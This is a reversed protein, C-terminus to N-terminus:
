GHTRKDLFSEFLTRSHPYIVVHTPSNSERLYINARRTILRDALTSLHSSLHKTRNCKPM